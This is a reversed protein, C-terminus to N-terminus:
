ISDGGRSRRVARGLDGRVINGNELATEGAILVYEIGEPPLVPQEYTARDRIKQADFIVVDADAGPKLTGKHTLGLRQAPMVTMKAIATHLDISGELAYHRVFRPFAGAARPHGQDGVLIGDSGLMTFPSQLALQVDEGRMFYGVTMTEPREARMKDFLAKDCRQGAYPGDCLLICDYGARYAAFNKEDYTTAGIETSFAEYPYCDCMM